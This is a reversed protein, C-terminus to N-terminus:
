RSMGLTPLIDNYMVIDKEGDALMRCGSEDKQDCYGEEGAVCLLGGVRPGGGAQIDAAQESMKDWWAEVCIKCDRLSKEKNQFFKGISLLSLRHVRRELYAKM